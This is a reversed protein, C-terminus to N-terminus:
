PKKTLGYVIFKYLYINNPNEMSQGQYKLSNVFLLINLIQFIRNVMLLNNIMFFFLGLNGDIDLLTYQFFKLM